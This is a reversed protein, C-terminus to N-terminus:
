EVRWLKGTFSRLAKQGAIEIPFNQVAYLAKGRYRRGLRTITAIQWRRARECKLCGGVNDPFLVRNIFMSKSPLGLEDLDDM